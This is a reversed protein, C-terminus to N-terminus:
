HFKMSFLSIGISVYFSFFSFPAVVYRRQNTLAMNEVITIISIDSLIETENSISLIIRLNNRIGYIDKIKKPINGRLKSKLSFEPCM